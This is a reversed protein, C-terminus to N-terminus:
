MLTNVYALGAETVSRHGSARSVILGAEELRVLDRYATSTSVGLERAIRTPGVPALEVTLLLAKLQRGTLNYASLGAPALTGETAPGVRVTVVTGTGLNDAIELVGQMARMMEDVLTLGSGVGRIVQKADKDASTFGARLAAKKDPIGPGHDSIRVMNGKDIITIVVGDFSAHVLNEVLERLVEYPVRGGQEQVLSHVRRVLSGIFAAVEESGTHVVPVQIVRPSAQRNMYVAIRVPELDVGVTAAGKARHIHASSYEQDPQSATM